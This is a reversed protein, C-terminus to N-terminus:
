IGEEVKIRTVTWFPKGKDAWVEDLGDARVGIELGYEDSGFWLTFLIGALRWQRFLGVSLAPPWYPLRFRASECWGAWWREYSPCTCTYPGHINVHGCGPYFMYLGLVVITDGCRRARIKGVSKHVPADFLAPVVYCSRGVRAKGIIKLQRRRWWRGLLREALLRVTKGSGLLYHGFFYLHQWRGWWLRGVIKLFLGLVKWM